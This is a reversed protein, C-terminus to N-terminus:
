PGVRIQSEFLADLVGKATPVEGRQWGMVGAVVEIASEPWPAWPSSEDPEIVLAEATVVRSGAPHLEMEVMQGFSCCFTNVPGARQHEVCWWVKM